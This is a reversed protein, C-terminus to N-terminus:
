LKIDLSFMSKLENFDNRGIQVNLATINFSFRSKLPSYRLGVGINAGYSFEHTFESSTLMIDTSTASIFETGTGKLGEALNLFLGPAVTFSFAKYRVFDYEMSLNLTASNFYKDRANKNMGTKYSGIIVNPNLRLKDKWIDTKFGIILSPGLGSLDKDNYSSIGYGFGYSLANKSFEQCQIKCTFLGSLIILFLIKKM